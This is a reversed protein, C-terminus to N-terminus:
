ESASPNQGFLSAMRAAQVALPQPAPSFRLWHLPPVTHIAHAVVYWTPPEKGKRNSANTAIYLQESIPEALAQAQATGFSESLSPAGNVHCM